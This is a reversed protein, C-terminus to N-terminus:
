LANLYNDIFKIKTKLFDKKNELIQTVWTTAKEKDMFEWGTYEKISVVVELYINYAADTM